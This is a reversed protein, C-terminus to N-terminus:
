WVLRVSLQVNRPDDATTIVGANSNSINAAPTGFNTTNLFNFIEARVEFRSASNFPFRKAFAVDLRQYSPGRLTNRGATGQFGASPVAYATPDFWRRATVGLYAMDTQEGLEGRDDDRGSAFNARQPVFSGLNQLASVSVSFPVGSQMRLAGSLQWDGLIASLVSTESLWRKGTGWPLDYGFSISARHPRDYRSRAWDAEHDWAFATDNAEIEGSNNDQNKSLQYSGTFFLGGSFRKDLRVSLGKFDGHGTDSSTLLAPAFQPYPLRQAQPATGERPQNLNFRKHEHRSQSGTYAVEVVYQRGFTRQVNVNWQRVYASVNDPNMSFPTPFTAALRPDPYLDAVNVLQTGTPSADYRGSFPPVLRTFQLENLNLNDFYLGFGSRLLTRENLQYVMGLRPGFNNLDKRVIGAPFYNDQAIVLPLLSAPLDAPVKHYAIKGTVPDFSGEIDNVEHWPALYEWRIGLQLTLADSVRWVDDIFPAFTPSKYTSRAGGFTGTCTSCYGLLFDAVANAPNNAAGTARGNFTFGGRAGTTTDQDTERWEAQFGFRLTHAGAVKSTANSLSYIWDTANAGVGTAAVGGFGSITAGPRGYYDANASGYLNRLGVDAVWNRALYDEGSLRSNQGHFSFNYGFRTENVTSASIVWTHGVALNKGTQPQGTDTIANPLSQQSDYWIYRAFSTHAANLVHDVRATVTDTNDTFDRVVRYNNAGTTNPAPIASLQLAAFPTIRSQPIRNGAFPLGTLPDLIANSVSSFDGTLFAPNPLNTFQVEGKTQRLGEYGAFLFLKNRLLPGGYTGGFQNRDHPTKSVAFYNKAELADDRFYEYASFSARNTGSKTVMSVVAQGQGYETSFANRLLNVEQVTDIPPNLSMNNWRLTRVYVGDIAYNTSSDRGGEVTVYQDRRGYFLNTRQFDRPTVGPALATINLLTRGSLPLEELMKETITAGVTASASSLLPAEGQVNVNEALTSITLTLDSRVTEGSRLVLSAIESTQFGTLEVRVRYTAAPLAPISYRGEADTVVARQAGTGVNTATVTAGPVAAKTGDFVQGIIGSSASQQAAADASVMAACMIMAAMLTRM